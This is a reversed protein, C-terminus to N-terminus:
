DLESQENPKDLFEDIARQCAWRITESVNPREGSMTTLGLQTSLRELRRLLEVPMRITKAVVGKM